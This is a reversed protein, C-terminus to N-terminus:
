TGFALYKSQMWNQFLTRTVQKEMFVSCRLTDAILQVECISLKWQFPNIIAARKDPRKMGMVKLVMKNIRQPYTFPAKSSSSANGVVKGSSTSLNHEGAM